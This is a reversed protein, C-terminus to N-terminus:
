NSNYAKFRKKYKSQENKLKNFKNEIIRINEFNKEKILRITNQFDKNNKDKFKTILETRIKNIENIKEFNSNKVLDSIKKSLNEIKTLDINDKSDNINRM